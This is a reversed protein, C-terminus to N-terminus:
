ARWGAPPKSSSAARSFAAAPEGTAVGYWWRHVRLALLGCAVGIVSGVIVQIITHDSVIVRSAPVFLLTAVAATRKAAGWTPWLGRYIMTAVCLALMSHSSPLGNSTLCSAAPRKSFPVYAKVFFENGLVVAAISLGLTRVAPSATRFRWICYLPVLALLWAGLSAAVAAQVVFSDEVASPVTIQLFDLCHARLLQPPSSPNSQRGGGVGDSADNLVHSRSADADGHPKGGDGGHKDAQSSSLVRRPPLPIAATTQNPLMSSSARPPPRNSSMPQGLQSSAGTTTLKDDGVGAAGTTPVSAVAEDQSM